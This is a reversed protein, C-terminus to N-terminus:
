VASPWPPSPQKPCTLRWALIPTDRAPEWDRSPTDAPQDDTVTAPAVLRRQLRLQQIAVVTGIATVIVGVIGVVLNLVELV